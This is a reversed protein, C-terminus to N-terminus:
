KELCEQILKLSDVIRPSPRSISNADLAFIKNNKVAPIANWGARNKIADADSSLDTPIIIVEPMRAIIQEESVIPYAEDVDSFINKGGAIEILENIFSNKGISMYPPSWIEWYVSKANKSMKQASKKIEAIQKELENAKTEALKAHGTIKGIKRIESLIGKVSSDSSVFYEIKQSRLLPILYDHMGSTLYVFDPNFSLINEISLTKGDFGGVVPKSLVESPYDSFDSRAVIQDIAGVECLIETAAPSLSVIRRPVSNSITTQDNLNEGAQARLTASYHSTNEDAKNKKCGSFAIIALLFITALRFFKNHKM